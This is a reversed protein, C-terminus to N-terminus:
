CLHILAKASSVCNMNERMFRRLIKQSQLYDAELNSQSVYSEFHHNSNTKIREFLMKPYLLGAKPAKLLLLWELKGLGGCPWQRNHKAHHSLDKLQKISSNPIM